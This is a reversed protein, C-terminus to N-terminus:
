NNPILNNSYDYFGSVIYIATKKNALDNIDFDTKSTMKSLNEKSVFKKIRQNFVAIISGKTDLPASLTGSVNYYIASNKNIEKLFNECEKNNNLKNALTFVDNLKVEEKTNEFLYLCLGTFFDIASNTWFPDSTDKSDTFLYYGIEEIVNICKDKNGEKYLKNALSLPNYYNGYIANDFDLMIVNYDRKKFENATKKYLEGKPDNVIISENALLSLKILPLILAQTKGSGSAGIILSNNNNNTVYINSGEYILPIGSYDVKKKYDVKRLYNKINNKTEWHSYFM